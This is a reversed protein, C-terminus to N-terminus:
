DGHNFEGGDLYAAGAHVPDDPHEPRIKRGLVGPGGGEARCSGLRLYSDAAPNRPVEEECSNLGLVFDASGM